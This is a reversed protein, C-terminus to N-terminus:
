VEDMQNVLHETNLATDLAYEFDEREALKPENDDWYISYGDDSNWYLRGAFSQNNLPNVLEFEKMWGTVEHDYMNVDYTQLLEKSDIIM